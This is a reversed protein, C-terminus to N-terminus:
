YTLCNGSNDYTYSYRISDDCIVKAPMYFVSSSKNNKNNKSILHNEWARKFEKRGPQKGLIQILSDQQHIRVLPDKIRDTQSQPSVLSPLCIFLVSFLLLSKM